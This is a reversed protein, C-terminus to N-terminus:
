LCQARFPAAGNRINKGTRPNRIFKKDLGSVSSYTQKELDIVAIEFYLNSLASIIENKSAEEVLAQGLKENMAELERQHANDKQVISDISHLGFIVQFDNADLPNLKAM